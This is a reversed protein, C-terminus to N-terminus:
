RTGPHLTEDPAAALSSQRVHLFAAHVGSLEGARQGYCKMLLMHVVTLAEPQKKLRKGLNLLDWAFTAM